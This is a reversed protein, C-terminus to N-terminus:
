WNSGLRCETIERSIHLQRGEFHIKNQQTFTIKNIDIKEGIKCGEKNM